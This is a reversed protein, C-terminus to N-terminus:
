RSRYFASYREQERSLPQRDRLAFWLRQELWYRYLFAEFSAACEILEGGYGEVEAPAEDELLAASCVVM